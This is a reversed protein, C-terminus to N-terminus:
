WQGGENIKYREMYITNNIYYKSIYFINIFVSFLLLILDWLYKFYKKIFKTFKLRTTPYIITSACLYMCLKCIYVIIRINIITVRRIWYMRINYRGVEDWYTNAWMKLCNEM